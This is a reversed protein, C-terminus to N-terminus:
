GCIADAQVLGWGYVGDRGTEGLDLAKEALEAVLEAAPKDPARARAVALAASVFPAAYSTGSRFRGGSISAATWIDVGPGAFDIHDGNVARRYVNAKADVATVAVVDRYAAPYLPESQPGANGAAAVLIVDRARAAEIVAELIANAPGAFSMNIVKVDRGALRDIARAIDFSDAMDVGEASQHFAEVAILEVGSMLGPTRTDARGALMVAIATGHMASAAERGEGIVALTEVAVDRLAAHEVNVGTDIMGVLTGAPCNRAEPSWGVLDFAACTGDSCALEGPEYIHNLDFLAGPVADLIATRAQEITLDAPVEFRALEFDVIGLSEQDLLTYGQQVILDLDGADPTAVVIEPRPPPPPPASPAPASFSGSFSGGSGSARATSLQMLVPAAYLMGSTLGLRTLFKRRTENTM